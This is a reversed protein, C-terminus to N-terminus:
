TNACEAVEGKRREGAVDGVGAARRSRPRGSTWSCDSGAPVLEDLHVKMAGLVEALDEFHAAVADPGYYVGSDPMGPADQRVIERNEESM